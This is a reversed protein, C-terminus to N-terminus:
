FDARREWSGRHRWFVFILPYLLDILSCLCTKELWMSTKSKVKTQGIVFDDAMNM